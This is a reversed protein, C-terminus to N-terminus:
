PGEPLSITASSCSVVSGTTISTTNMIMDADSTGCTGQFRVTGGDQTLMRWFTATGTDLASTEDAIAAATAIAGPTDDAADGFAATGDMNLQALLDNSSLATDADAPPTGDYINLVPTTGGDILDVMANLGALVVANTAYLAQAM